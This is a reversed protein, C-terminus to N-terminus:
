PQALRTREKPPFRIYDKDLLNLLELLAWQLSVIRRFEQRDNKKAIETLDIRLKNFIISAGSWQRQRQFELYGLCELQDNRIDTLAEGIARQEDTFLRFASRSSDSAWLRSIKGLIVYLEKTKLDNSMDIYQIDRRVIERWCLFQAIRFITSDLAYTHEGEDNSNCFSLFDSDVINYIRSQLEFAATALAERVRFVSRARAQKEANRQLFVSVGAAVAASLVVGIVAILPAIFDLSM